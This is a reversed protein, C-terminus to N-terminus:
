SLEEAFKSVDERKKRFYSVKKKFEACPSASGNPPGVSHAPFHLFFQGEEESKRMNCTKKSRRQGCSFFCVDFIDIVMKTHMKFSFGAKIKLLRLRPM